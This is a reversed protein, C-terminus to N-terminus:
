DAKTQKRGDQTLKRDETTAPTSIDTRTARRDAARRLLGERRQPQVADSNTAVAATTTAKNGDKVGTQLDVLLKQVNSVDQDSASMEQETKLFEVWGVDSAPVLFKEVAYLPACTNDDLLWQAEMLVFHGSDCQDPWEYAWGHLRRGDKLHLILYRKESNFTSFWESPYSTRSTVGWKCLLRHICNTHACRAAVYGIVGAWALAWGTQVDVTWRGLAFANSGIFLLAVGVTATLLQAFATFILAQVTREFPSQRPHATMGYFIWASLFGPLLYTIVGIVDASAWEM